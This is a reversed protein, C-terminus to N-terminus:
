ASHHKRLPLTAEFVLETGDKADEQMSVEDLELHAIVALSAANQPSVSARLVTAGAAHAADALAQAAATAYGRLRYDPEITYGIEVMGRADPPFHFGMHGIVTQINRLIIARALWTHDLAPDQKRQIWLAAHGEMGEMWTEAVPMGFASALEVRRRDRVLELVNIPIPILDLEASAITEPLPLFDTMDGM